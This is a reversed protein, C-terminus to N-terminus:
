FQNKHDDSMKLSIEDDSQQYKLINTSVERNEDITPLLHGIHHSKFCVIQKEM